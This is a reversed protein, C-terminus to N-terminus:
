VGTPADRLDPSERTFDAGGAHLGLSRAKRIAEARTTVGLKQYIRRLHTKVTNPSIYLEAAIQAVTLEREVHVLILRERESLPDRIGAHGSTYGRLRTLLGVVEPDQARDVARQALQDLLAFPILRFSSRVGTRLMAHVARDFRLDSAIRDGRELDVASLLLQVDILTRPSHGEGLRECGALATAAGTLDGHWLANRAVFRAPCLAHREHPNLTNLLEFAEEGRDLTGLIDGRLLTALDLGIGPPQWTLYRQHARQLLDLAVIPEGGIAWAYSAFVGALPEWETGASASM